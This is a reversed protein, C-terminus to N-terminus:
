YSTYSRKPRSYKLRIINSGQQEISYNSRRGIVKPLLEKSTGPELGLEDDIDRFKIAEGSKSPNLWSELLAVNDTEDYNDYPNIKISENKEARRKYLGHKKIAQRIEHCAPGIAGAIDEREADYTAISFGWLDSPLHIAPESPAIIFCRKKSLKGIFLGLEFLVNDRVVAKNEGRMLTVDDPNFVFAGYDCVNLIELLSDIPAESINFVGQPWVTVDADHQLNTQMTYAATLGEVSSAVFMKPKM